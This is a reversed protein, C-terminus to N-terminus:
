RARIFIQTFYCAGGSLAVGVGTMNRDGEINRRHGDSELWMRVAQAAPDNGGGTYAVNEAQNQHPIVEAITRCRESFGDHGFPVAGTAMNTSHIRCQEAIIDSWTLAPLSLGARHANVLQHVRQEIDTGTTGVPATAGDPGTGTGSYNYEDDCAAVWLVAASLLPVLWWGVTQRNFVAHM